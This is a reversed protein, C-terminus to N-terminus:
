RPFSRPWCMRRRAARAREIVAIYVDGKPTKEVKLQDKTLGTKKLFGDLAAQRRM